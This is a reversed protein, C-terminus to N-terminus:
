DLEFNNEYSKVLSQDQTEKKLICNGIALIEIGTGMFCRFADEPNNVIPRGRVNISAYVIIPCVTLEKFRTFLSYYDPNTNKHGNQM